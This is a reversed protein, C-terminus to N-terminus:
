NTIAATAEIEIRLGLLGLARVGILSQASPPADGFFDLLPPGVVSAFEPQYDVVYIRLSTVDAPTAWAARLAHGLQSEFLEAPQIRKLPM